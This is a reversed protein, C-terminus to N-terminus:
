GAVAVDPNLFPILGVAIARGGDDALLTRRPGLRQLVAGGPLGCVALGLVEAALVLGTRVPSGTTVLVFWPLAVATMETGTTSVLDALLLLVVRRTLM